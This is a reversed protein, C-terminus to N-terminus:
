PGSPTVLFPHIVRCPAGHCVVFLTLGSQATLSKDSAALEFPLVTQSAGM